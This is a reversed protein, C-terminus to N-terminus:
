LHKKAWLAKSEEQRSHNIWLWHKEAELSFAAEYGRACASATAWNSSGCGCVTPQLWYHAMRLCPGKQQVPTHDHSRPCIPNPSPLPLSAPSSSFLSSSSLFSSFVPLLYSLSVPSSSLSSTSLSITPKSSFVNFSLLWFPLSYLLSCSFWLM